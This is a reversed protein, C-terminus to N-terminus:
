CSLSRASNVRSKNIFPDIASERNGAIIEVIVTYGQKCDTGWVWVSICNMLRGRMSMTDWVPGQASLNCLRHPVFNTGVIKKKKSFNVKNRVHCYEVEPM